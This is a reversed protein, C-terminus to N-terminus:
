LCDTNATAFSIGVKVVHKITYFHTAIKFFLEEGSVGMKVEGDM